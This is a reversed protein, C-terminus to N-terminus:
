GGLVPLEQHECKNFALAAYYEQIWKEIEKRNSMTLECPPKILAPLTKIRKLCKCEAYNSAKHILASVVNTEKHGGFKYVQPFNPPVISLQKLALKSLILQKSLNKVILVNTQVKCKPSAKVLFTFETEGVVKAESGNACLLFTNSQKLWIRHGPIAKFCTPEPWYHLLKKRM